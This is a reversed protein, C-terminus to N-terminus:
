GRGNLDDDESALVLCCWLLFVFVAFTCVLVGKIIRHM